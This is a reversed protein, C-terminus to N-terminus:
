FLHLSVERFGTSFLCGIYSVREGTVRCDFIDRVFQLILKQILSILSKLM